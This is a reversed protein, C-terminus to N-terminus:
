SLWEKCNACRVVPYRPHSEIKQPICNGCAPLNALRLTECADEEALTVHPLECIERPGNPSSFGESRTEPRLGKAINEYLYGWTSPDAGSSQIARNIRRMQNYFDPDCRYCWGHYACHQTTRCPTMDTERREQELLDSM